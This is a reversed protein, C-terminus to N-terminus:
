GFILPSCLCCRQLVCEQVSAKIETLTTYLAPLAAGPSPSRSPVGRPSAFSQDHDFRIGDTIM